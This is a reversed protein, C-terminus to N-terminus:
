RASTRGVLSEVLSMAVPLRGKVSRGEAAFQSDKLYQALEGVKALGGLDHAMAVASQADRTELAFRVELVAPLRPTLWLSLREVGPLVQLLPVEAPGLGTAWIPSGLFDGKVGSAHSPLLERADGTGSAFAYLGARIPVFSMPPAGPVYCYGTTCVGASALAYAELKAADFRGAIVAYQAKARRAMVVADLHQRYNFGSQTVFRQYEAEEHGRAGALRELLGTRRLLDVDIFAYIEANAPAHRLLEEATGSARVRSWALWGLVLVCLAVVSVLVQWTRPFSNVTRLIGDSM